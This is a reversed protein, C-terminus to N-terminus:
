ASGVTVVILAAMAGVCFGWWLKRRGYGELARQEAPPASPVRRLFHPACWVFLRHAIYAVAAMTALIVLVKSM